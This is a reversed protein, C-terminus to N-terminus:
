GVGGDVPKAFSIGSPSPCVLLKSSYSFGPLGLQAPADLGIRDRLLDDVERAAELPERAVVRDVGGRRSRRAAASRPRGAGASPRRRRRLDHRLERHLVDLREAQQLHVEQPQAVEVHDVLRDVDHDAAIEVDARDREVIALGVLHERAAVRDADELELRFPHAFRQALHL